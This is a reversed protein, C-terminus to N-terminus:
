EQVGDSFNANLDKKLASLFDNVQIADMDELFFQWTKM